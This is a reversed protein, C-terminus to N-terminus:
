SRSGFIATGVRVMTAGEAIAYPYDQSTGMSLQDLKLNPYRQNVKELIGRARRFFLRAEEPQTTLPPMVMIGCLKLHSLTQIFELGEWFEGNARNSYVFGSKTEEVAINIEVLVPLVIDQAPLADNLRKAVRTSDLTHVWHYNEAVIQVKRSQIHGIMHWELSPDAITARKSAGEEPYNEGLIRGGAQIYAQIKEVPQRKSVAILKVEAGTRGSKQAADFVQESVQEFNNKIIENLSTM